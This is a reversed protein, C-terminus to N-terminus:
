EQAGKNLIETKDKDTILGYYNLDAVIVKLADVFGEQRALDLERAKKSKEPISGDKINSIVESMGEFRDKLSDILHQIPTKIPENYYDYVKQLDIDNYHNVIMDLYDLDSDIENCMGLLEDKHDLWEEATDYPAICKTCDHYIDELSRIIADEIYVTMREFIQDAHWFRDDEIDGLNAGQLDELWFGVKDKRLGFDTLTLFDTFTEEWKNLKIVNKM